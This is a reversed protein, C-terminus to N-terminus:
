VAATLATLDEEIMERNLMAGAMSGSAVAAAIQRMPSSCDGAAYIGPVSTQGFSSVQILGTDTLTCGLQSALDTHQRNPVHSFIATLEHREGSQFRLAQLQGQEHEVAVVPEEVIPVGIRSIFSRQEPTLEAPGNTFLTLNKSWHYILRVLHNATEGRALIGLPQSHVEYGHCYPCHLISRGWCDAFGDIAPMLDYVGTALILKRSTFPQGSATQIAFGSATQSADTVLDTQFTVTPYALAQEKAIAILQAPTEGDRTLFGHSHPTQRNCPKDGDIILVNRLSRGLLMAASLGAASGGVIIVDYKSASQNM